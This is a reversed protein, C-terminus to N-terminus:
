WPTTLGYEALVNRKRTTSIVLRAAPNSGSSHISGTLRNWAPKLGTLQTQGYVTGDAGELSVTLPGDFGSAARAYTSFEYTAGQKVAIGWFGENSVGAKEGGPSNAEIQLSRTKITNLPNTDDFFLNVRAAGSRVPAWADLTPAEVFSGNRVLEAYLGGDGGHNIEEIFLGFLKPSVKKGAQTLDVRIEAAHVLSISILLLLKKM